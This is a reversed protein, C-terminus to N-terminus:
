FKFGWIGGKKPRLKFYLEQCEKKIKLADQVADNESTTTTTIQRNAFDQLTWQVEQIKEKLECKFQHLASGVIVNWAFIHSCGKLRCQASKWQSHM